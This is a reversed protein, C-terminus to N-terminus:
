KASEGVLLAEHDQAMQPIPLHGDPLHHRQETQRLRSQGLMERFQALLGEDGRAPLTRRYEIPNGLRRDQPDNGNQGIDVAGLVLRTRGLRRLIATSDNELSKARAADNAGCERANIQMLAEIPRDASTRESGALPASSVGWAFRM